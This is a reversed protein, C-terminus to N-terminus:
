GKFRRRTPLSVFLHTGEEEDTTFWIKGGHARTILWASYTGLGTGDRKGSTVYREFFRDRIQEPITGENHVDFFIDYDKGEVKLTIEKGRPSADAANQLLNSLINEITQEEGIMFFDDEEMYIELSLDKAELVKAFRYGLRSVLKRLDFVTPNLEYKGEAMKYMDLSQDVMRLVSRGSDQIAEVLKKEKEELNSSEGLLQAGGIIGNLPSKLDHRVVREVDERLQEVRMRDTVDRAIHVIQEAEGAEDREVEWLTIEVFREKGQLDRHVHVVPVGYDLGDGTMIPCPHASSGCPEELNHTVKYCPLGVVAERTGGFHDIFTQNADIIRFTKKDLLSIEEPLNDLMTSTISQNRELEERSEELERNRENLKNTLIENPERIGKIVVGRYLMYFSVFKLYHGVLNSIDYVGIYFTFLMEAAITALIAAVTYLFVDLYFFRRRRYLLVISILLMLAVVYESVVKFPTLGVGEVHCDPFYGGFVAALGGATVAAVAFLTLEPNLKRSLFFPAVLFVLGEMYRALVWLQTPLNTGTGSFVNMGDYAITHTTDVIGVCLYVIGILPFFGNDFFRRGNWAIFFVTWAVAVSFLEAFVHALLFNFDAMVFIVALGTILQIFIALLLRIEIGGIFRRIGEADPLIGTHTSGRDM